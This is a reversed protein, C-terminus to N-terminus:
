QQPMPWQHLGAGRDVTVQCCKLALRARARQTVGPGKLGKPAMWIIEEMLCLGSAAAYRASMVAFQPQGFRRKWINVQKAVWWTDVLRYFPGARAASPPFGYLYLLGASEAGAKTAPSEGRRQTM